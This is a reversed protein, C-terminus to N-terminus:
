GSPIPTVRDRGMGFAVFFLLAAALTGSTSVLLLAGTLGLTEALVGALAAGLGEGLLFLNEQLGVETRQANPGLRQGLFTISVLSGAPWFFAFLFLSAASLTFDGFAFVGAYAVATALGGAVIISRAWGRDAVRGFWVGSLAWIAASGVFLLVALRLDVGRAQALFLPLWSYASWGFGVLFQLGAIWRVDRNRLAKRLDKPRLPVGMGRPLFVALAAMPVLALAGALVYYTRWDPAIPLFVAVTLGALGLGLAISMVYIGLYLGKREGLTENIWAYAMVGFMALGAGLLFQGAVFPVLSPSVGCLFAGVSVCGLGALSIPKPGARDAFMGAVFPSAFGGLDLAAMAAGLIAETFGLGQTVLLALLALLFVGYSAATSGVFLWTFIVRPRQPPGRDRDPGDFAM